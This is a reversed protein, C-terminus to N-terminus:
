TKPAATGGPVDRVPLVVRVKTGLGTVSEVDITGHHALVIRKALALGLGVGGTGRTRSRDGRFFPTFLRPLDERSIGIGHDEVEFAVGNADLAARLAITTAPDPSYKHANQLLNDLVRRFLVPDVQLLPLDPAVVIELRRSTHLSRFREEVKQCLSLPTTDGIHLEFQAAGSPGRSLELRTATLIDDILSELEALDVAIETMSLRGAELDGEGAIDLAVRIRALPTRLEHSVNAMLEKEALLLREIRDGMENFSRAVDGIEDSRVLVSRARLDGAGFAGAVQSLERLPRVISRATLLSGVVLIVLGGCFLTTLPSIGHNRGPPPHPPLPGFRDGPPPPREGPPAGPGEGFPPGIREHRATETAPPAGNVLRGVGAFVAALLFLQVLGIASLRWALTGRTRSTM